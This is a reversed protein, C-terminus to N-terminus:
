KTVGMSRRGQKVSQFIGYFNMFKSHTSQM